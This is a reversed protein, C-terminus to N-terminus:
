SDGGEGLGQGDLIDVVPKGATELLPSWEPAEIADLLVALEDELKQVTDEVRKEVVDLRDHLTSHDQCASSRVARPQLESEPGAATHGILLLLLGLSITTPRTM